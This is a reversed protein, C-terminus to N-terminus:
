AAVADCSDLLREAREIADALSSPQDPNGGSGGLVPRRLYAKILQQRVIEASSERKGPSIAQSSWPSSLCYGARRQRSENPQSM